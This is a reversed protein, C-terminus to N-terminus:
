EAKLVTSLDVRAARLAARLSVALALVLILAAVSGLTLPDLPQIQFLFSRITSAGAWALALGAVIGIGVLRVTESLVISGLQRRTAGLAARIGMERMRSTALAEAIVYSGILTLLSAIAGLAGLVTRAFRQPGMQAAIRQDLSLLPGPIVSRDIQSLASLLERKVTTASDSARIVVQRRLGPSDATLPVYITLPELLAVNAVFDRLVGVIVRGDQPVDTRGIEVPLRKGLASSGLARALSESVIAVPPGGALDHGTFNRGSVLPLGMAAAYAEDIGIESVPSSFRRPLGDIPIMSGGGMGGLDASIALTRVSRNASLSGRLHDFFDRATASTYGHPALNVSTTVIRTMDDGGNLSLAAAMSRAFLGAGGTLVLAVAVQAIVLWTRLGRRNRQTTGSTPARADNATARFAFSSAISGVLLISLLAGGVAVPLMRPGDAVELSQMSIGGPL